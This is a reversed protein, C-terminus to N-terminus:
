EDVEKNSREFPLYILGVWACFLLGVNGTSNESYNFENSLQKM